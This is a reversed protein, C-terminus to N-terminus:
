QSHRLSGLLKSDLAAAPESRSAPPNTAAPKALHPAGPRASSRRNDHLMIASTVQHIPLTTSHKPPRANRSKRKGRQKRNQITGIGATPRSQITGNKCFSDARAGGTRKQM